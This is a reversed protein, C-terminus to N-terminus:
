VPLGLRLRETDREAEIRSIFRIIRWRGAWKPFPKGHWKRWILWLLVLGGDIALGSLLFRLFDAM